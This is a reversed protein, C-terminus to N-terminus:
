KRKIIKGQKNYVFVREMKEPKAIEKRIEKQEKQQRTM